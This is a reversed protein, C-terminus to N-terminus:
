FSLPLQMGVPINSGKSLNKKALIVRLNNPVHLGGKNLPVIHDVHYKRKNKETKEQAEKYIQQILYKQIESLKPNEIKIRRKYTSLNKKFKYKKSWEKSYKKCYDRHEERYKKCNELIRNKNLLYWKKCYDKLEIIRRDKEEKTMLIKPHAIYRGRDYEIMKEPNKIRYNRQYEAHCKKCYRHSCDHETGCKSCIKM